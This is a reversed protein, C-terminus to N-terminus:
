KIERIKRNDLKNNRYGKIILPIWGLIPIFYAFLIPNTFLIRFFSLFGLNLIDDGRKGAKYRREYETFIFAWAFPLTYPFKGLNQFFVKLFEMFQFPKKGYEEVSRTLDTQMQQRVRDAMEKFEDQEIDEYKKDTWEYPKIRKGRVFVLKAPFAFYFIWPQLLILPTIPSLPLFPIGVANMMNNILKNSYSYPNIYEGNVTSIPIIDTRFKISMRIFSTSMKQLQYRKNFGKGIGPVGEPFIMVNREGHFMMTEFNKYTADIGGARKWLDPVMYPNMLSSQSLMPATLVRLAHHDFNYSLNVKGSVLMADWPFAMGSHNCAYILPTDDSVREPPTEFGVLETRFYIEDIYKVLIELLRTTYEKDFFENEIYLNQSIEDTIPPKTFAETIKISKEEM